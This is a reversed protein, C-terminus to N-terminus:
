KKGALAKAVAGLLEPSIREKFDPSIYEFQIMGQTDLVFLSPVPLWGQNIGESSKSLLDNYKEPAQFAVGVSRIFQGSADSFLQYSIEDKELTSKLKEPADPSIAIIQYGLDLLEQEMRAVASLHTNCYPCWGGRYLILITKKENLLSSFSLSDGKMSTLAIDPITEGVLLPSIDEPKTPLSEQAFSTTTIMLLLIFFPLSYLHM